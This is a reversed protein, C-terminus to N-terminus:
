RKKGPDRRVLVVAAGLIIAGLVVAILFLILILLNEHSMDVNSEACTRENGLTKM